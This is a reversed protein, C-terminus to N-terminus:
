SSYLARVGPLSRGRFMIYLLDLAALPVKEARLNKKRAEWNHKGNVTNHLLRASRFCKHHVSHRCMVALSQSRLPRVPHRIGVKPSSPTTEIGTKTNSTGSFIEGNPVTHNSVYGKPRM